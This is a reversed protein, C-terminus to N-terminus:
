SFYIEMITAITTFFLILLGLGVSNLPTFLVKSMSWQSGFTKLKKGVERTFKLLHKEARM